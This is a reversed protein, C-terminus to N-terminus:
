SIKFCTLKNKNRWWNQKCIWCNRKRRKQLKDKVQVIKVIQRNRLMNKNQLRNRILLRCLTNKKDKKRETFNEKLM